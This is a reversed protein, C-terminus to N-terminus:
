HALTIAPIKLWIRKKRLDEADGFPCLNQSSGAAENPDPILQKVRV